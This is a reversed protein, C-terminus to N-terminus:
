ENEDVEKGWQEAMINLTLLYQKYAKYAQEKDM